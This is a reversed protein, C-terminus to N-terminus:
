LGKDMEALSFHVQLLKSMKPFNQQFNVLVNWVVVHGYNDAAALLQGDPSFRVDRIFDTFHGEGLQHYYKKRLDWITM